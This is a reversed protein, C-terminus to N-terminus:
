RPQEGEGSYQRRQRKETRGDMGHQQKHAEGTRQNGQRSNVDVRSCESM